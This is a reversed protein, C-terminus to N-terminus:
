RRRGTPGAPAGPRLRAKQAQRFGLDHSKPAHAYSCAGHAVLAAAMTALLHKLTHGSLCLLQDFITHDALECAKAMVYCVMALLFVRRQARPVGAQWQVLPILVLPMLQLLLYPRLDGGGQLDTFRWWAVSCTSLLALVPTVWRQGALHERWIASLLGACALAIPLRDWVLRGNDPALHYWGSGLATLVLSAFFLQYGARGPTNAPRGHNLRFLGWVGVLAFGINSLVDAAHPISLWARQDAFHHYDALQAIPGHLGMATIAILLVLGPLLHRSRNPNLPM